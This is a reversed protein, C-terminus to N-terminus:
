LKNKELFKALDFQKIQQFGDPLNTKISKQLPFKEWVPEGKYNSFVAFGGRDVTYMSFLLGGPVVQVGGLWPAFDLTPKEEIEIKIGAFRIIKKPVILKHPFITIVKKTIPDYLDMTTQKRFNRRGSNNYFLVKGSRLVQADHVSGLVNERIDDHWIIKKLNKDLIFFAEGASNAIYNGKKFADIRLGSPNDPIEYFSNFHSIECNAGPSYTLDKILRAQRYKDFFDNLKRPIEMRKLTKGTEIDLVLVVDQRLKCWEFDKDEQSLVLLNKKDLSLNIQHHTLIDRRWLEEGYASIRSLKKEFGYPARIFSGDELFVCLKGQLNKVFELKDNHIKCDIVYNVSALSLVPHGLMLVITAWTIVYFSFRIKKYTKM